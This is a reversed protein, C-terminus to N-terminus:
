RPDLIEKADRSWYRWYKFQRVWGWTMQSVAASSLNSSFSLGAWDRASIIECNAWLAARSEFRNSEMLTKGNSAFVRSRKTVPSRPDRPSCPMSCELRRENFACTTRKPSASLRSCVTNNYGSKPYFELVEM